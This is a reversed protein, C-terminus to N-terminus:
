SVGKHPGRDVKVVDLMSNIIGVDGGMFIFLPYITKFFIWIEGNPGIM